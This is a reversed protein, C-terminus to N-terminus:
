IVQSNQNQDTGYYMTHNSIWHVLIIKVQQVCLAQGGTKPFHTSWGNYQVTEYKCLFYSIQLVLPNKMNEM